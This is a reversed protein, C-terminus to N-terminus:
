GEKREREASEGVGFLERVKGAFGSVLSEGAAEEAAEEFKKLLDKQKRSLNTPTEVIIRVVQDGRAGSRLDPAGKGKLRFLRGTQTGAPIAMKVVGQLTPVDIRAGLSAQVMSVPLECIIHPGERQFIAHPQVNLVVYLDGPPGGQVGAEGEGRLKLRSGDDVGAPIKVKIQRTEHGTGVGRCTPCPTRIVRGLGNCQGCTKAIQFLGQQFRVQGAGRCAPCTEPQTGPKCGNGGCTSCTSARPVAIHREAGEVAEEFTVDLDYRLDDGRMGGRRTRRRGGGGGFFDGFLDGLVDEFISAGAGGFDFGSFGASADFAAHGFRDDQARKDADSLVQYAESAEKFKLENEKKNEPHRDPHYKLALARYAKKVEDASAERGVGLVEYYDKKQPV